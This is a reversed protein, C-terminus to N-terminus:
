AKEIIRKIKKYFDTETLAMEMGIRDRVKVSSIDVPITLVGREGEMVLRGSMSEPLATLGKLIRHKVQRLNAANSAIDPCGERDSFERYILEFAKQMLSANRTNLGGHEKMCLVLAYFAVDMGVVPIATVRGEETVSMQCKKGNTYSRSFAGKHLTLTWPSRKRSLLTDFLIKYFGGYQFDEGMKRHRNVTISYSGQLSNFEDVFDHVQARIMASREERTVDSDYRLPICLFNAYGIGNLTSNCLRLLWSPETIDLPMDLGDPSCLMEEYFLKTTMGKVAEIMMSLQSKPLTPAILRFVKELNGDKGDASNWANLRAKIEPVYVLEFGAAEVINGVQHVQQLYRGDGGLVDGGMRLERSAPNELFLIQSDLIPRNRFPMSYVRVGKDKMAYRLAVILMAEERCCENDSMAIGDNSDSMAADVERQLSASSRALTEFADQLTMGYGAVLDMDRIGFREYYRELSELEQTSIVNDSKVLDSLVRVIAAKEKETCIM